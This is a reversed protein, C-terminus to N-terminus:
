TKSQTSPLPDKKTVRAFDQSLNRAAIKVGAFDSDDVLITANVLDTGGPSFEIFQEELMTFRKHKLHNSGFRYM